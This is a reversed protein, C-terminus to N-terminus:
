PREKRTEGEEMQREPLELSEKRSRSNETKGRKTHRCVEIGGERRGVYVEKNKSTESDAHSSSSPMPASYTRCPQKSSQM